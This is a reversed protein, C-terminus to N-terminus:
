GTLKQLRQLLEQEISKSDVNENKVEVRDTLLGAMKAALALASQQVAPPVTEGEALRWVNRWVRDAQREGAIMNRQRKEGLIEAVTAAIDPRAALKSAENNVTTAAMGSADYAARYSEANNLGAALGECFKRQKATLGGPTKGSRREGGRSEKGGVVTLKPKDNDM